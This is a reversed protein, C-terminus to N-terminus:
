YFFVSPGKSIDAPLDSEITGLLEVCLLEIIAIICLPDSDNTFVQNKKNM